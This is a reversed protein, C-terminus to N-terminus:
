CESNVASDVANSVASDVSQATPLAVSSAQLRKLRYLRQRYNSRPGNLRANAEASVRRREGVTDSGACGDGCEELRRAIHLLAHRHQNTPVGILRRRSHGHGARIDVLLCHDCDAARLDILLAEARSLGFISALEVRALLAPYAQTAATPLGALLSLAWAAPAPEPAVKDLLEAAATVGKAAAQQLWYAAQIDARADRHRQRWASIGMEHQAQAHGGLAARELHTRADRLSRQSFEPKLYIKSLAYAAEVMGQGAALLLWRIARKYQAAGAVTSMREGEHDIRALWLGLSLRAQSDGAVASRELQAEIEQLDVRDGQHLTQVRRHLLALCSEVWAADRGVTIHMTSVLPPRMTSGDGDATPVLAIASLAKHRLPPAVARIPLALVLQALEFGADADGADYAHEYWRLVNLTLGARLVVDSPVHRGILSWAEAIGQQAARDLWYLATLINKPLGTGGFLYKKGLAVQAAGEGGRAARIISLEERSAMSLSPPIPTKSRPKKAHSRPAADCCSGVADGLRAGACLAGPDHIATANTELKRKHILNDTLIVGEPIVAAHM